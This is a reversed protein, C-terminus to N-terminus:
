HKTPPNSASRLQLFADVARDAFEPDNIALQDVITIPIAPTVSDQLATTFARDAQPDHLPGGVESLASFGGGPILISVPGTAANLRQAVAKAILAADDANIRVLTADPTHAYTRRGALRDPVTEPRGFNIVDIGGPVVLQPLGARGAATLRGPGPNCVGDMVLDTIETISWDLVATFAGSDIQAEMTPGGVGNTHFGVPTLHAYHLRDMVYKAGASTIGYVSVAILNDPLPRNARRQRAMGCIAAAANDLVTELIPNLGSIDTISFVSLTDSFQTYQGVDRGATSVLVKPFGVPLARLVKSAIWSGQGGGIAIAADVQRDAVLEALLATAGAATANMTDLKTRHADLHAAAAQIAAAPYDAIVGDVDNSGTNFLVPVCGCNHIREAVYSIEELKTDLTGLVAVTSM